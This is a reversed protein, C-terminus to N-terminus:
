FEQWAPEEKVAVAIAAQMRGVPGGSAAASRKLARAQAAKEVVAAAPKAVLHPKPTANSAGTAHTAAGAETQFFAVREGM